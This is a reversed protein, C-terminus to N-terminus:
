HSPDTCQAFKRTKNSAYGEYKCILEEHKRIWSKGVVLVLVREYGVGIAPHFLGYDATHVNASPCSSCNHTVTRAMYGCGTHTILYQLDEDECEPFLPSGPQFRAAQLQNVDIVAPVCQVFPLGDLVVIGNLPIHRTHSNPDKEECESDNGGAAGQERGPAAPTTARRLSALLKRLEGGYLTALTKPALDRGAYLGRDGDSRHAIYVMGNGLTGGTDLARAAMCGPLPSRVPNKYFYHWCILEHCQITNLRSTIGECRLAHAARKKATSYGTHINHHPITQNM